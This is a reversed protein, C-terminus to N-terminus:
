ESDKGASALRREADELSIGALEVIKDRAGHGTVVRVATRRIGMTDALFAVLEGNARGREAPAAVRVKWAAGVRGVVQSARAAPVARVRLRVPKLTREGVSM